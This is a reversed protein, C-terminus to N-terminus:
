KKFYTVRPLTHQPVSIREDRLVPADTGEEVDAVFKRRHAVFSPVPYLRQATCDVGSLQMEGRQRRQQLVFYSLDSAIDYAM